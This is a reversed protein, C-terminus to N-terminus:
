SKYNNMELIYVAATYSSGKFGSIYGDCASATVLSQRFDERKALNSLHVEIAPISLDDIADRIAVSTHAYGGPNIILADYNDQASQIINVLEGEVNSQFFTFKNKSFKEILDSQIDDLTQNGYHSNDRSGLRNLNPGNVILIKL